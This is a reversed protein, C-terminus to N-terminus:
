LKIYLYKKDSWYRPNRKSCNTQGCYSWRCNWDSINKFLCGSFNCTLNWPFQFVHHNQGLQTSVSHWLIDFLMDLALTNCCYGDNLYFDLASIKVICYFSRQAIKTWHKQTWHQLWTQVSNQSCKSRSPVRSIYHTFYM